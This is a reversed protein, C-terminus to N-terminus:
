ALLHHHAVQVSANDVSVSSATRADGNRETALPQRLNLNRVGLTVEPENTKLWPSILDPSFQFPERSGTVRVDVDGRVAVRLELNGEIGRDPSIEAGKDTSIQTM